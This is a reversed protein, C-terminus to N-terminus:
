STMSPFLDTNSLGHVEYLMARDILKKRLLEQPLM